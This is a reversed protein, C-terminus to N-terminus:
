FSGSYQARETAIKAAVYEKLMDQLVGEHRLNNILLDLAEEVEKDTPPQGQNHSSLAAIMGQWHEQRIIQILAREEKLQKKKPEKFFTASTHPKKFMKSVEM